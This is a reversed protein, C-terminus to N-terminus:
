RRGSTVSWTDGNITGSVAAESGFLVCDGNVTGDIKAHGRVLVLDGSTSEGKELVFNHGTILNGEHKSGGIEWTKEAGSASIQIPISQGSFWEVARQWRGIPKLEPCQNFRESATETLLTLGLVGAAFFMKMM